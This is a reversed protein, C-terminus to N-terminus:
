RRPRTAVVATVAATVAASQEWTTTEVRSFASKALLDTLDELGDPSTIVAIGGRPALVTDLDALVREGDMRHFAGGIVCLDIRPLCLRTVASADGELWSVNPCAREGALRSGEALVAPEPHVAYVHDALPTLSLALVGPGPGAGSAGLELVTQSGDLAFREALKSHLQAPYPTGHRAHHAAASAFPTTM